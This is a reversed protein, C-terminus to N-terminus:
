AEVRRSWARARRAIRRASRPGRGAGPRGRARRHRSGRGRVDLSVVVRTDAERLLLGAARDFLQERTLPERLSFWFRQQGNGLEAGSIGMPAELPPAERAPPRDAGGSISRHIADLQSTYVPVARRGGLLGHYGTQPDFRFAVGPQNVTDILQKLPWPLGSNWMPAALVWLGASRLREVTQLAGQWEERRESRVDRGAIVNMKARAAHVGFGPPPNEFLDLRDVVVAPDDAVITGM